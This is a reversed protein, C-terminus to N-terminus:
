PILYFDVPLCDRRGNTNVMLEKVAKFEDGIKLENGITIDNKDIEFTDDGLYFKFQYSHNSIAIVEAIGKEKKYICLTQKLDTTNEHIPSQIVLAQKSSCATLLLLWFTTIFQIKIHKM